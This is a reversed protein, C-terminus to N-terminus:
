NGWTILKTEFRHAQLDHKPTARITLGFNGSHECPIMGTYTTAKTESKGNPEMVVTNTNTMNYHQDIIGFVIEVEVDTPSLTGLNVLASVKVQNGVKYDNTNDVKIKNIALNDWSKFIKEKWAAFDKVTKYNNQQLKELRKMQEVYLQETYETVMRNTNFVPGLSTMSKKMKKIWQEPINDPGRDYFLPIMESELIQYLSASEVKNQYELDDYEEGRGIAWGNEGNYGEDWWGDLVSCNLGGNFIAKMGSTGSAELPRRPNNLWVDVGQLLYHACNLDYDELFVVHRRLEPQRAMHAIEQILKKGPEDHPHAKGAFIFQISRNKDGILKILREIDRFILTARKYTAFRRAFGITLVEPDLVQDAFEIEHDPLGRAILQKKLKRRVYGVLRERRREHTRWLESSPILAVREWIKQDGPEEVWRPGIYRQFLESMELSIWSNAHVGNTIHSIPIEEEPLTPWLHGWMKRSVVGHLRAVGNAKTSLSLALIAMSFSENIDDGNGRGLGLLAQDDLGLQKQHPALYSNVMKPDFIDIGAPVPTHTTFITSGAVLEKAESYSLKDKEMHFGIRELGLFASHGENMHTVCPM